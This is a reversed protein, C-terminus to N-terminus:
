AASRGGAAGNLPLAAAYDRSDTLATALITMAGMREGDEQPRGRARHSRARALGLQTAGFYHQKCTGCEFWLRFNTKAATAVYRVLCTMHAFGATPGRCACNRHLPEDGRDLCIICVAEPPAAPVPPAAAATAM